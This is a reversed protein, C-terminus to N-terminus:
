GSPVGGGGGGNWTVVSSVNFDKGGSDSPVYPNYGKAIGKTVTVGAGGGGGGDIHLSIGKQAVAPLVTKNAISQEPLPAFTLAVNKSFGASGGGDINAGWTGGYTSNNSFTSVNLYSTKQIPFPPLSLKPLDVQTHPLSSTPTPQPAGFFLVM